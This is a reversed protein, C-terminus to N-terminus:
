SKGGALYAGIAICVLAAIFALFVLLGYTSTNMLSVCLWWLGVCIMAVFPAAMFAYGIKRRSM